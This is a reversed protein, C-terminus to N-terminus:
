KIIGKNPSATPWTKVSMIFMLEFYISITTSNIIKTLIIFDKFSSSCSCSKDNMFINVNENKTDKSLKETPIPNVYMVLLINKPEIIKLM